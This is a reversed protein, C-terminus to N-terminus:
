KMYKWMYNQTGMRQIVYGTIKLITFLCASSCEKGKKRLYELKQDHHPSTLLIWGNGM